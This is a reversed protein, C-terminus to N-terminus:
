YYMLVKSASVLPCNTYFVEKWNLPVTSAVKKQAAAAAAPTLVGSGLMMLGGAAAVALGSEKMFNRRSNDSESNIKDM